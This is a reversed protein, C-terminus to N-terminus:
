VAVKELTAEACLACMPVIVEDSDQLARVHESASIFRVKTTAEATCIGRKRAHNAQCLCLCVDEGSGM